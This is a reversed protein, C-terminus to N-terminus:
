AGGGGGVRVRVGGGVRVKVGGRVRVPASDRGLLGCLFITLRRVQGFGYRLWSRL